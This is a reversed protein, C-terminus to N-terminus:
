LSSGKSFAFSNIFTAVVFFLSPVVTISLLNLSTIDSGSFADSSIINKISLSRKIFFTVALAFVSCCISLIFFILIALEVFFLLLDVFFELELSSTSISSVRLVIKLKFYCFSSLLLFVAKIYHVRY